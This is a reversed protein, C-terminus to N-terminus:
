EVASAEVLECIRDYEELLDLEGLKDRETDYDEMLERLQEPSLGAFRSEVEEKSPPDLAEDPTVLLEPRAAQHISYVIHYLATDM